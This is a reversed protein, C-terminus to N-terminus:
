PGPAVARPTLAAAPPRTGPAAAPRPTRGDPAPARKDAERARPNAAVADGPAYRTLLAVVEGIAFPVRARVLVHAPDDTLWLFVDGRPSGPGSMPASVDVRVCRFKGGPTEVEERERVQAVLMFQRSGSVVPLAHRDGPALPQLRLWLFASTLEQAGEPVAFRKESRRGRRERVITAEGRGRDFRSRDVHVDGAEFARLESGRPLRSRADWYSVLHERVDVLGAVGRTRAEFFVPWILGEPRGVAIRAEGAVFGLYRVELTTEEGPAFPAASASGFAAIMALVAAIRAM